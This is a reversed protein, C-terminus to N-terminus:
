PAAVPALVASLLCLSVKKKSKADSYFEIVLQSAGYFDSPTVQNPRM